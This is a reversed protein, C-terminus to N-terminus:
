AADPQKEPSSLEFASISMCREYVRLINPYDTLELKYRNANYVQPILFCEALGPTDAVCYLSDTRAIFKEFARFSTHIWHAYWQASVDTDANLQHKLYKLVRLNNLPHTDCAILQALSRARAREVPDSPLLPVSNPLAEDLYEIIAMSQTLVIDGDVLTPVLQSPNLSEYGSTYQEGGNYLLHVPMYEYPIGKLNLAIRVRYAASSRFYSYLKIM